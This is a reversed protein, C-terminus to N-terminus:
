INEKNRLQDDLSDYLRNHSARKFVMIAAQTAANLSMKPFTGLTFCKMKGGASPTRLRVMLGFAPYRKHFFVYRDKTKGPHKLQRVLEDTLEFSTGKM